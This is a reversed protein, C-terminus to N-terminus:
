NLEKCARSVNKLPVEDLGGSHFPHCKCLRKVTLISGSLLGYKQYSELAYNSCTPYFRCSSGLIPSLFRQYLKILAVVPVALFSSFLSFAKKVRLSMLLIKLKNIKHAAFTM